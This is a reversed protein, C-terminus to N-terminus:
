NSTNTNLDNQLTLEVPHETIATDKTPKISTPKPLMIALKPFFMEIKLFSFVKTSFIHLNLAETQFKQIRLQKTKQM